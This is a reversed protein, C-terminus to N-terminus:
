RAEKFNLSSIVKKWNPGLLAPVCPLGLSLTVTKKLIHDCMAIALAHEFSIGGSTLMMAMIAEYVGVGGPTTPAAKSLNAVAVASLLLIFPVPTGVALALLATTGTELLWILGTLGASELFLRGRLLIDRYSRGVDLIVLALLRIRPRQFTQAKAEFFGLIRQSFMFFTFIPPLCASLGLLSLAQRVWPPLNASMATFVLPSTAMLLLFLDLIRTQVAVATAQGITMGKANLGLVILADGLKMPLIANMAFGAVQIRFLYGASSPHPTAFLALRWTRFFWATGYCILAPIAYAWSIRSLVQLLRDPGAKFVLLAIVGVGLCLTLVFACTSRASRTM